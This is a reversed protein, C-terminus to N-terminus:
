KADISNAYEISYFRCFRRRRRRIHRQETQIRADGDM